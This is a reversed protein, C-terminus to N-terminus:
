QAVLTAGLVPSARSRLGPDRVRLNGDVRQAASGRSQLQVSPLHGTHGICFLVPFTSDGSALGTKGSMGEPTQTAGV